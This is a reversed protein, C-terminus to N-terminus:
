HPKGAEAAKAAAVDAKSTGKAVVSFILTGDDGGGFFHNGRPNLSVYFLFAYRWVEM